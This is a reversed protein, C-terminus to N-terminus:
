LFLFSQKELERHCALFSLKEVMKMLDMEERRRWNCYNEHQMCMEEMHAWKHFTITLPKLMKNRETSDTFPLYARAFLLLILLKMWLNWTMSGRWMIAKKELTLVWAPQSRLFVPVFVRCPMIKKRRKIFKHIFDVRLSVGFVNPLGDSPKYYFFEFLVPFICCIKKCFSITHSVSQDNILLHERLIRCVNIWEDFIMSIIDTSKM